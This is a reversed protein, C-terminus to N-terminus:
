TVEPSHRFFDRLLRPEQPILNMREYEVLELRPAVQQLVQVSQLTHLTYRSAKCGKVTTRRRAM